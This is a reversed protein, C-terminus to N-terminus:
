ATDRNRWGAKLAALTVAVAPRRATATRWVAYLRRSPAPQLPVVIVGAPLPGRGLRALLGIGIGQALMALQTQYEAVSYAVDPEAGAKRMTRVLWDHCISGAPQCIWREGVLDAARVFEKGALRHSAPVLVDAPDSGLKIRSLGDPLALPTNHWDHVVAVHVEGRNVAAVAEFPDTEVVRIELAPHGDILTTLATPLLGRAATPFAALRLEGVAKGRQEELTLEAQEVLRLVQEATTALQQAADTLVIGRGRRELLMTGTERELKALQQSVASPTYGLAEAASSVSGYVAVAHLARLRGLDMM